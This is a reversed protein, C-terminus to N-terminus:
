PIDLQCLPCHPTWCSVDNMKNAQMTVLQTCTEHTGDSELGCTPEGLIWMVLEWSQEPLLGNTTNDKVWVFPSSLCMAADTIYVPQRRKATWFGGWDSNLCNAM